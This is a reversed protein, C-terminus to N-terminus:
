SVGLVLFVITGWGSPVQAICLWRFLPRRDARHEGWEELRAVQLRLAILTGVLNGLVYIAGLWTPVPTAAVVLWAVVLTAPVWWIRGSRV